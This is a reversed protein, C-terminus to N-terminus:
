VENQLFFIIESVLTIDLSFEISLEEKKMYVINYKNMWEICNFQLM